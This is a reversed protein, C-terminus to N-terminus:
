PINELRRILPGFEIGPGQLISIDPSALSEHENMPHHDIAVEPLRCNRVQALVKPTDYGIPREPRM